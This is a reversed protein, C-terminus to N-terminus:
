GANRDVLIDALRVALLSAATLDASTGPNVNEAKLAADFDLLPRKMEMPRRCRRFEGELVEARRRVNEARALSYKRAVHSDPFRALFALYASTAAWAEAEPAGGALDARADRIRSVGVAFVDEYAAAYQRAILDRGAAEAMAELLTATPPDRVDHRASRGLGAPAARRIAQFALEADAVTLRDLVGRVRARLEGSGPALAAHALPACLLVIGLNTNCGVEAWTAEVAALIREGVTIGPRGMAPASVRASAVFDEVTMDHGDAHVGVNGPKLARVETLCADEYARAVLQGRSSPQPGAM